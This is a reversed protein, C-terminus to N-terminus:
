KFQAAHDPVQLDCGLNTKVVHAVIPACGRAVQDEVMFIFSILERIFFLRDQVAYFQAKCIFLLRGPKKM